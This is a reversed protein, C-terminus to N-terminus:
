TGSHLIDDLESRHRHGHNVMVTSILLPSVEFHEAAAEMTEEDPSITGMWDILDYYPCLFEQAFARQFKQRATGSDTCPLWNGTEGAYVHDAIVRATMFRRSDKRTKGLVVKARSDRTVEGIGIPLRQASSNSAFFGEQTELLEALRKTSLPGRDIGLHERTIRAAGRAKEWPQSPKGDSLLKSLQRTGNLPLKIDEGSEDLCQQAGEIITNARDAGLCALEQIAGEGHAAILNKLFDILWDPAEEPDHGLKAELQRQLALAPSSREELVTQWLERLHKSETSGGPQQLTQEVFGSVGTEFRQAPLWTDLRELYRLPGVSERTPALNLQINEGDSAFTLNPWVYGEGAAAMCHSMQWDQLVDHESTTARPEWRLRWWNAAFWLALPYPSVTIANKVKHSGLVNEHRFVQVQNVQLGLYCYAAVQAPVSEENLKSIWEMDFQM